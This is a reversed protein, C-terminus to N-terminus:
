LLNVGTPFISMTTSGDGLQGYINQGWCAVTGDSTLACTHEYNDSGAGDPWNGGGASVQAVDTLIGFGGPGIVTVPVPTDATTGDGIQGFAAAGWCQATGDSLRACSHYEGANIQTATSISGSQVPFGSSNNTGDGLEGHDNDGWCYVSGDSLRACSHFRGATLEAVGTLYGSGGPGVVETAVPHDNGDLGGNGVEGYVNYGFCWATGDSRLACTHNHGAAAQTVNTLYTTGSTRVQVAMNRQTTSNDGVQGFANYGWCWLTQDNRVACTHGGGASVQIVGTLFASTSVRVQVPTSSSTTSNNGLQGYTNQGWCWVTGDTRLGCSHYKSSTIQTVNTLGSVMVPTSSYGGPLSAGDGLEGYENDGWCEVRGDSRLACTHFGGAAVQTAVVSNVVIRLPDSTHTGDTVVVNAVQASAIRMVGGATSMGDTFTISTPSGFNIQSGASNTVTRTGSGGSFTLNHPGDAYGQAPNGYTDIARITLQDTAGPRVVAKEAALGLGDLAAADITVQYDTGNTHSGDSVHIYVTEAKYLRMTTTAVNWNSFNISEATGFDVQIGNRDTATPNYTRISGAGSFTLNHNGRYARFGLTDNGYTDTATITVTFPAGATVTTNGSLVFGGMTTGGNVQFSNTSATAGGDTATIANSATANYLTVSFNGSSGNAFTIASEDAACGGQGLNPYLPATGNPSPLPGSFAVCETGSVVNGYADQAGTLSLNFAAGATRTTINTPLSFSAVHGRVVTVSLSNSGHGEGSASITPTGAKYLIMPPSAVGASFSISTVTGFAVGNVTPVHSGLTCGGGQTCTFTLNHSGTYSTATNGYLDQATVTLTNTEGANVTGPAALLFSNVGLASVTVSLGAGNSHTGDSVVISATEAKYLRMVGNSSGSVSAVGNTFNLATASGFSIATGSSNTVTPNYSGVSGAGSFTLSHSGTYSTVTNGYQDQATITLNDAQGATPTTTAATMGFSSLAGASVTVSLGAGNSHTGDSVVISATEAKYLRMVGNSSGSVSAVGNTFSLATASGFSIATGSSNTVTPNYSGVSGAGSFTLSHSGTYSTVTNGYADEATITLNDAQGASPTTTAATMDFSSLGAPDVTFSGTTVSGFGPVTVTLTTTEARYLTLSPTAVGNTFAVSSQGAPCSGQAPYEPADGNPSTGPDSFIMCVDGSVDTATNGYADLATITVTFPIGATQMGPTEVSGSAVSGPAVTVGLSGTHGSGDDVGITAAGSRYLRMVGNSSGSVQAVGAVFDITTSQGFTRVAGTSDTVTPEYSGITCNGSCSFTLTLTSSLTVVTNGDADQATITLNDAQGATPTTTAAQIEFQALAGSALVVPLSSSTATWSRWVATVAYSHAGASLGSDTCSLGSGPSAATPCDGGPDGGDRTVFYTVSGSGPPTIANWSLAVTGAGPNGALGTPADLTGAQAGGSGSGTSTWYAAATPAVVFLVLIIV